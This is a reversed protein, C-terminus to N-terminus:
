VERAGKTGDEVSLAALTEDELHLGEPEGM